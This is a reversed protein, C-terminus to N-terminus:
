LPEVINFLLSYAGGISESKDNILVQTSFTGSILYNTSYRQPNVGDDIITFSWVSIEAITNTSIDPSFKNTNKVVQYEVDCRDKLQFSPQLFNLDTLMLSDPTLLARQENLSAFLDSSQNLSKLNFEFFANRYSIVCKEEECQFWEGFREDRFDYVKGQFSFKFFCENCATSTDLAVEDVSRVFDCPDRVEPTEEDCSSFITILVFVIANFCFRVQSLIQAKYM